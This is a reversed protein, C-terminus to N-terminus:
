QQRKGGSLLIAIARNIMSLYAANKHIQPHLSSGNITAGMFTPKRYIDFSPALNGNEPQLTVTVDLFNLTHGEYKCTLRM